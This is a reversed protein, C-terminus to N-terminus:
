TFSKKEFQLMGLDLIQCNEIQFIMLILLFIFEIELMKQVM